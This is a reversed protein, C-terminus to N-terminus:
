RRKRYQVSIGAHHTMRGKNIPRRSPAEVDPKGEFLPWPPENGWGLRVTDRMLDARDKGM